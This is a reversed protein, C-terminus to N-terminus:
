LYYFGHYLRQLYIWIKFQSFLCWLRPDGSIGKRVGKERNREKECEGVSCFFKVSTVFVVRSFRWSQVSVNLTRAVRKIGSESIETTDM